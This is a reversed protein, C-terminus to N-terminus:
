TSQNGTGQALTAGGKGLYKKAIEVLRFKQLKGNGTYPWDDSKLFWVHRPVKFRALQKRCLDVIDRREMTEGEKLEVFAAGIEGTMSDPAGVVSVQKISEHDSIVEEVEQPAVNEGSVIFMEKSRGLFAIYGNEDIRGLDGTYFWGDKDFAEATEEPKRYYGKSVFNGRSVLEGPKTPDIAKRSFPDVVKYQTNAGNFEALGSSGGPKIRGVRTAVTDLEDGIETHVTSATVETGGYATCIEDLGLEDMAQKWVPVPTPAAACLLSSLPSLDYERLDPDNLISILMSPVGLFDTARGKEMLRLMSRPMPEETIFTGGVYSVAVFGEIYAFVHYMPLATFMRRGDEFARSLSTTYGCRLIMDHTVMVGKPNGTTGSTYIIDAVEDPYESNRRREDLEDDSIRGTGDLFTQWSVCEGPLFFSSEDPICVAQDLKQKGDEDTLKNEKLLGKIITAYDTKKITEHFFLWNTDSQNLVYALEDERLMTNIPICVAGVLSVAIKLTMFEPKNDMLLAVHDRRKVGLALLAQAIETSENWVDQYTMERDKTILLSRDPYTGIQDRFHTGLTKREWVPFRREIDQRREAANKLM